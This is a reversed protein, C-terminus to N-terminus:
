RLQLSSSVTVEEGGCRSSLSESNLFFFLINDIRASAMVGRDCPRRNKDSCGKKTYTKDIYVRRIRRSSTSKIGDGPCRSLGCCGM